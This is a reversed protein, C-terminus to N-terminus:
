AAYRSTAQKASVTINDTVARSATKDRSNTPKESVRTKDTVARHAQQRCRDSCFKSDRRKGKFLGECCACRMPGKRMELRRKRNEYWRRRQAKERDREKQQGAAWTKKCADCYFPPKTARCEPCPYVDHLPKQATGEHGRTTATVPMAPKPKPAPFVFPQLAILKQSTRHALDQREPPHMDPHALRIADTLLETTLLVEEKDNAKAIGHLYGLPDCLTAVDAGGFGISSLLATDKLKIIDAATGGADMFALMARVVIRGINRKKTNKAHWAGACMFCCRPGGKDGHLPTM